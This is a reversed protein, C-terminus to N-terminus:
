RPPPRARAKTATELTVTWGFTRWAEIWKTLNFPQADWPWTAKKKVYPVVAYRQSTWYRKLTGFKGPAKAIYKSVYKAAGRKNRIARVDVIPSDTLRAMEASLWAQDIFRSRVLVHLHPWGLKTQEFIALFHVEEGPRQHKINRRVLRWARVLARAALEPTVNPTRRSTLTILRNPEGDMAKCILQRKRQEQCDACSWSCCRITVAVKDPGDSTALCREGCYGM